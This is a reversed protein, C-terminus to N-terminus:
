TGTSWCGFSEAPYWCVFCVFIMERRRSSKNRNGSEPSNLMVVRGQCPLATAWVDVSIGRISESSERFVPFSMLFLFFFFFFFFFFFSETLIIATLLSFPLPRHRAATASGSRRSNSTEVADAVFHFRGQLLNKRMKGGWTWEPIIERGGTDGESPM